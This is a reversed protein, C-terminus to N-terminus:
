LWETRQRILCSYGDAIGLTILILHSLPFGQATPHFLQSGKELDRASQAHVQAQTVDQLPDDM